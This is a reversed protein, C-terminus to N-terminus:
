KSPVLYMRQILLKPSPTIVVSTAGTKQSTVTYTTTANTSSKTTVLFLDGDMSTITTLQEKVPVSREYNLAGTKSFAYSDLSKSIENFITYEETIPNYTRLQSKSVNLLTSSSDKSVLAIRKLAIGDVYLLSDRSSIFVPSDGNVVVTENETKRSFTVIKWDVNREKDKLALISDVEAAQFALTESSPDSSLNYKYTKSTTLKTVRGDASREFLNSVLPEENELLIYYSTQNPGSVFDLVQHERGSEDPMLLERLTGNEVTYLISGPISGISYAVKTHSTWFYNIGFYGMIFVVLLIVIVFFFRLKKNLTITDRSPETPVSTQAIDM